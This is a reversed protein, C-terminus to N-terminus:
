SKMTDLGKCGLTSAAREIEHLDDSTLEIVAAVVNKELSILRTAGRNSRDVPESVEACHATHFSASESKKSTV